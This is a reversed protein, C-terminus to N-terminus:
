KGQFIPTIKPMIENSIVDQASKQGLWVQGLAAEIVDDMKAFTPVFYLPLQHAYNLAFDVVATKYEPPHRPNGTWKELLASDTYWRKENPLWIGNQLLPLSSNPDMLFGLLGLSADLHKTSKYVVIPTGVSTTVLKKMYPLVGIGFDLGQEEKTTGITLLDWTGDMAMAVQGSLLATGIAGPMNQSGPVPSVHHVNILDAMKQIADITAPDGMTLKKGDASVMGGGNSAALTLWPMWWQTVWFGFTRINDKDFGSDNPTKGNVDKTLKKAVTVFQDWSWAKSAEAPPYPLGAADFIKKSYWIVMIENAVSIGVIKGDPTVFKIADLKPAAKKYFDTLDVFQGNMGWTLVNPEYFTSVDPLTGSAALTTIKDNFETNSGFRQGQVTVNPNKDMFLKLLATTTTEENQDGWYAYTITAPGGSAAGKEAGGTAGASLAVLLLMGLVSVVTILPRQTM